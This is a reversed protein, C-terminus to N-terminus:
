QRKRYEINSRITQIDKMEKQENETRERNRRKRERKTNNNENEFKKEFRYVRTLLSDCMRNFLCYIEENFFISVFSTQKMKIKNLLPQFTSFHFTLFLWLMNIYRGM